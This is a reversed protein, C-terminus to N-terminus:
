SDPDSYQCVSSTVPFKSEKSQEVSPTTERATTKTEDHSAGGWCRSNLEFWM